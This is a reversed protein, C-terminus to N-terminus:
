DGSVGMWRSRCNILEARGMGTCSAWYGDRVTSDTSQRAALQHHPAMLMVRM